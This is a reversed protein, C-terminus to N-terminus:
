RADSIYGIRHRIGALTTILATRFSNPLLLALDFGRRRLVTVAWALQNRSPTEILEDILPSARFLGGVWPRSLISIRAAPFSRRLNVLTPIALVADGVWNPGVVLIARLRDAEFTRRVRLRQM